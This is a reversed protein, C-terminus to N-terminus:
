SAHCATAGAGGCCCTRTGTAGIGPMIGGNSAYGDIATHDGAQKDEVLAKANDGHRAHEDKAETIACQRQGPLQSTQAPLDSAGCPSWVLDGIQLAQTEGNIGEAPRLRQAYTDRSQGIVGVDQMGHWRIIEAVRDIIQVATIDDVLARIQAPEAIQGARPNIAVM